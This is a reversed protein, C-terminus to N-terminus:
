LGGLDVEEARDVLNILSQSQSQPIAVGMERYAYSSEHESLMAASLQSAPNSVEPNAVPKSSLMVVGFVLAGVAALGVSPKWLWAFRNRPKEAMALIKENLESRWQLNVSEEPLGGLLGRLSDTRELGEDLNYNKKSM